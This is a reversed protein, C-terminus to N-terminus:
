KSLQDLYNGRQSKKAMIQKCLDSYKEKEAALEEPDAEELLEIKDKTSSFKKNKKLVKSKFLEEYINLFRDIDGNTSLPIFELLKTMEGNNEKYFNIL